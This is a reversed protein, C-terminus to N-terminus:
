MDCTAFGAPCTACHLARDHGTAQLATRLSSQTLSQGGNTADMVPVDQDSGPVTDIRLVIESSTVHTRSLSKYNDDSSPMARCAKAARRQRILRNQGAHRQVPLFHPLGDRMLLVGLLIDGYFVVNGSFIRNHESVPLRSLMGASTFSNSAITIGVISNGQFYTNAEKM